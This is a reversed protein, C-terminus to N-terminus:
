QCHPRITQPRCAKKSRSTYEATLVSRESLVGGLGYNEGKDDIVKHDLINALFVGVVEDFDELRKIGDGDVPGTGEEASEGNVLVIGCAGEVDGHGFIELCGKVFKLM